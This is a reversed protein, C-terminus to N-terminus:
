RSKIAELYAFKGFRDLLRRYERAKVRYIYRCPNYWGYTDNVCLICNHEFDANSQYFDKDSGDAYYAWYCDHLVAPVVFAPNLATLTWRFAAPMSASGIGNYASLIQEKSLAFLMEGGHLHLRSQMDLMDIYTIM